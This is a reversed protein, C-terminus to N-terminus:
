IMYADVAESIRLIEIMGERVSLLYYIQKM